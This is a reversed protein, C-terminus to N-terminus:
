EAGSSTCINGYEVLLRFSNSQDSADADADTDADTDADADDRKGQGSRLKTMMPGFSELSPICTEPLSAFHLACSSYSKNQKKIIGRQNIKYFMEQGSCLKTVLPEFSKISPICTEPLSAFHLACSGYSKNQKQIIGRQNIKYLMDQGSCLKTVM